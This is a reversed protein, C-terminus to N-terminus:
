PTISCIDLEFVKIWAITGSSSRPRAMAMYVMINMPIAGMPENSEPKNASQIPAGNVTAMPPTPAIAPAM